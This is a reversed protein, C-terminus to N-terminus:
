ACRCFTSMLIRISFNYLSFYRVKHMLISDKVKVTYEDSSIIVSYVCCLEGKKDRYPYYYSPRDKAPSIPILFKKENKVYEHYCLNILVKTNNSHKTKIVLGARPKIEDASVDKSRLFFHRDQKSENTKDQHDISTCIGM